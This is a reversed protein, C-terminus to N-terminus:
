RSIQDFTATTLTGREHSTVALGILADSPLDISASGIPTNQSGDVVYANVTTGSRVLYLLIPFSRTAGALFTTTGGSTPRTMFEIGGDPKVDLIVHAASPDTSARIMIGAKAFSSTNNVGIVRAYMGGDNALSTYDFNFADVTGWIDAGGGSVRTDGGSAVAGGAVGVDGIDADISAASFVAVSDFTATNLASTDQNTVVFGATANPGMAIQVAGVQQWGDTSADSVFATFTSTVGADMRTLKLSVPFSSQIGGIYTTPGGATSRTMFEVFGNPRVDLVVHVASEDLSQRFM